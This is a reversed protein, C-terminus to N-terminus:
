SWRPPRGNTSAYVYVFNDFDGVLLLEEERWFKEEVAKVWASHNMRRAGRLQQERRVYAIEIEWPIPDDPAEFLGDCLARFRQILEEDPM